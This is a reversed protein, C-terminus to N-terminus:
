KIDIKGLVSSYLENLMNFSYKCFELKPIILYNSSYFKDNINNSEFSDIFSKLKYYEKLEKKYGINNYTDLDFGSDKFLSILKGPMPISNPLKLLYHKKDKSYYFLIEKEKDPLKKLIKTEFVSIQFEKPLPKHIRAFQHVVQNRYLRLCDIFQEIEAFKSKEFIELKLNIRTLLKICRQTREIKLNQDFINFVLLELHYEFNNYLSVILWSYINTKMSYLENDEIISDIDRDGGELFKLYKKTEELYKSISIKIISTNKIM